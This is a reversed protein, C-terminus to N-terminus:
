KAGQLRIVTKLTLPTKSTIIVDGNDDDIDAINVLATSDLFTAVAGADESDFDEGSLDVVFEDGDVSFIVQVDSSTFDQLFDAATPEFSIGSKGNANIATVTPATFDGADDGVVDVLDVFNRDGISNFEFTANSVQKGSTKNWTGDAAAFYVPDGASVPESTEVWIDGKTVIGVSQGVGVTNVAVGLFSTNDNALLAGGDADVSGRMVPQGAKIAGEATRSIRTSRIMTAQNGPFNPTLTLNDGFAM